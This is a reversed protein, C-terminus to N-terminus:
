PEGLSAIHVRVSLTARGYFGYVGKCVSLTPHGMSAMCARVSLCLPTNMNIKQNALEQQVPATVMTGM